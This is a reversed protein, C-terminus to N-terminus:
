ATRRHGSANEAPIVAFVLEPYAAKWSQARVLSPAAALLTAAGLLRRRHIM